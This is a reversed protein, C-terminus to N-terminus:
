GKLGQAFQRSEFRLAEVLAEKVRQDRKPIQEKLAKIRVVTQLRSQAIGPGAAGVPNVFLQRAVQKRVRGTGVAISALAQRPLKQKLDQGQLAAFDDAQTGRGKPATQDDGQEIAASHTQSRIPAHGPLEGLIAVLVLARVPAQHADDNAKAGQAAGGQIAGDAREM